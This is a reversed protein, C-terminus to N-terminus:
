DPKGEQFWKIYVEFGVLNSLKVTKIKVILQQIKATLFTKKQIQSSSLKNSPAKPLIKNKDGVAKVYSKFLKKQAFTFPFTEKEIKQQIAVGQKAKKFVDQKAKTINIGIKGIKSLPAFVQEPPGFFKSELKSKTEKFTDLKFVGTAAKSEQAYAAPLLGPFGSTAKASKANKILLDLLSGEGIDFIQKGLGAGVNEVVKPMVKIAEIIFDGYQEILIKVLPTVDNLSKELTPLMNKLEISHQQLLQEPTLKNFQENSMASIKRKGYQWGSGAFYMMLYSQIPM